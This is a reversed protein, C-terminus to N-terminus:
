TLREGELSGPPVFSGLRPATQATPRAEPTVELMSGLLSDFSKGLGEKLSRHLKAHTDRKEAARSVEHPELTQPDRWPNFGYGWPLTKRYPQHFLQLGVCGM